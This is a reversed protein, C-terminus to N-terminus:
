HQEAERPQVGLAECAEYYMRTVEVRIQPRETLPTSWPVRVPQAQGDIVAEFTISDGDLDSVSAATATPQAGLSKVILLSDEPHDMNMHTAVADVVQQSFPSEQATSM